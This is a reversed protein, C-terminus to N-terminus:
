VPMETPTQQKGSCEKQKCGSTQVSRFVNWVSREGFPGIDWNGPVQNGAERILFGFRVINPSATMTILHILEDVAFVVPDIDIM